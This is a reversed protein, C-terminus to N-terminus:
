NLWVDSYNPPGSITAEMALLQRRHTSRVNDKMLEVGIERYGIAMYLARAAHNTLHTDLWVMRAERRGGWEEITQM